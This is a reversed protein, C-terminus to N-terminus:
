VMTHLEFTKSSRRHAKPADPLTPPRYRRLMLSSLVVSVSSLAMALGAFMPPVLLHYTPYFVGAALPVGLTNYCMAWFFNLHIRFMTKHALDLATPVDKLASKMLVVDAAEIAVDTGSGVAIGVDSKALAPADNIGDGVMAVAAGGAQLREVAAAKGEPM